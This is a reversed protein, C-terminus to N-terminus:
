RRATLYNYEKVASDVDVGHNVYMLRVRAHVTPGSTGLVTEIGQLFDAFYDPHVDTYKRAVTLAATRNQTNTM